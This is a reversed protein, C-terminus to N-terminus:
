STKVKIGTYNIYLAINTDSTLLSKKLVGLLHLIYCFKRIASIRLLGVKFFIISITFYEAEGAIM